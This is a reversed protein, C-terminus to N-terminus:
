INMRLNRQNWTRKVPAHTTVYCYQGLRFGIGRSTPLRFWGKHLPNKSAKPIMMESVGQSIHLCASQRKLALCGTAGWLGNTVIAIGLCEQCRPLRLASKRWWVEQILCWHGFFQKCSGSLGFLVCHLMCLIETFLFPLWTLSGEPLSVCSNFIAM